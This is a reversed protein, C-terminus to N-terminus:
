NGIRKADRQELEGCSLTLRCPKSADLKAVRYMSLSSSVKNVIERGERPLPM